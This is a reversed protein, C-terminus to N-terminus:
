IFEDSSVITEPKTMDIYFTIIYESIKSIEELKESSRGGAFVIGSKSFEEALAKGIGSTAGTIVYTKM